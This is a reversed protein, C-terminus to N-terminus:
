RSGGLADVIKSLTTLHIEARSLDGQSIAEEAHASELGLHVLMQDRASMTRTFADTQELLERVSVALHDFDQYRLAASM